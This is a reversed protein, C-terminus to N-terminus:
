NGVWFINEAVTMEPVLNLEQHVVSIGMKIADRPTLHTIRKGEFIFYGESPTYVGSLIKILTSKGAGNEGLLAHVKGSEFGLNISQLVPVGSFSKSIGFTQLLYLDDIM